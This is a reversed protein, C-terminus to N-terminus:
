VLLTISVGGFKTLDTHESPFSKLWRRVIQFNLGPSLPFGLVQMSSKEPQLIQPQLCLDFVLFHTLNFVPLGCWQIRVQIRKECLKMDENTPELNPGNEYSAM